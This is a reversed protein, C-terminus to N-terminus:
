IRLDLDFNDLCVVDRRQEVLFEGHALAIYIELCITMHVVNQTAEVFACKWQLIVDNINIYTLVHM